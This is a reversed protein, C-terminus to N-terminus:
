GGPPFVVQGQQYSYGDNKHLSTCYRYAIGQVRQKRTQINFSGCARVAIRGIYQGSKIGKTVSAKVIDGTQFGHVIRHVKASTRPFGYRDMRCMQRSQRGTAKILLPTVQEISLHEPTSKGVCIADIWHTKPLSHHTRNYKTLGGSGCEIPIGTLKLEDFLAWRAANVSAADKLPARAQSQIRRLVDSKGKLFQEVSQTGKKTNCAECALALNSIRDTGGKARPQIHEIQLPVDRKGCYACTRNWKELLYERVEYGALTGQQYEVGSISPHQMIQTDFKVLELSSATIPASRM